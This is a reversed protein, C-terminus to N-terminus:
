VTGLSISNACVLFRTERRIDHRLSSQGCIVRLKFSGVSWAERNSPIWSVCDGVTPGGKGVLTFVELDVIMVLADRGNAIRGPEKVIWLVVRFTESHTSVDTCGFAL